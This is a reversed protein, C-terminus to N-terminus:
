PAPITIVPPPPNPVDKGSLLDMMQPRGKPACMVVSRAPLERKIAKGAQVCADATAYVGLQAPVSQWTAWSVLAILIYEM